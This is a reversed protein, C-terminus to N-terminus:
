SKQQLAKLKEYYVKQAERVNSKDKVIDDRISENSKVTTVSNIKVANLIEAYESVDLNAKQILKEVVQYLVDIQNELYTITNSVDLNLKLEYRLKWYEFKSKLEPCQSMLARTSSKLIGCPVEEIKLGNTEQTDADVVYLFVYVDNMSETIYFRVLNVTNGDYAVPVASKRDTMYPVLEIDLSDTYRDMLFFSYVGGKYEEKALNFTKSCYLKSDDTKDLIGFSVVLTTDNETFTYEVSISDQYKNYSEPQKLLHILLIM